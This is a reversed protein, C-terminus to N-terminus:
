SMQIIESARVMEKMGMAYERAEIEEKCQERISPASAHKLEYGNNGESQAVIWQSSM